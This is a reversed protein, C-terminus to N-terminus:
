LGNEQKKKSKNEEGIKGTISVNRYPKYDEKKKIRKNETYSHPQNMNLSKTICEYLINMETSPFSAVYSPAYHPLFFSSIILRSQSSWGGTNGIKNIILKSCKYEDISLVAESIIEFFEVVNQVDWTPITIMVLHLEPYIIYSFGEKNNMYLYSPLDSNDIDEKNIGEKGNM